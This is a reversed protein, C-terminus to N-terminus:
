MMQYPDVDLILQVGRSKLGQESSKKAVRLLEQALFARKAKILVQWRYKGRLKAIPAEAPGLVAIDRGKRPWRQLTKRLRESLQWAATETTERSNGQLRLAILYTFPPFGLQERLGIEKEYLAEYNQSV